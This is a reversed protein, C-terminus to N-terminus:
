ERGVHSSNTPFQNPSSKLRFGSKYCLTLTECASFERYQFLSYDEEFLRVLMKDRVVRVSEVIGAKEFQRWLGEEVDAAEKAKHPRKNTGEERAVKANTEDDVFGLNGVFVCSRHDIGAPHAVSDVRLHRDLVISGNLRSVAERAALETAYVVYANTSKTTTEMIEKKVFAAKKPMGSAAFATSRFRLSEIGHGEDRAPLSSAISALHNMLTKRAKKSRIATTSVNALFVTRSSKGLDPDAGSTFLSEHQPVDAVAHGEEGDIETDRDSTSEGDEDLTDVQASTVEQIDLKSRKNHLNGAREQGETGEERVLHSMYKSELDDEADKRKRNRTSGAAVNYNLIFAEPNEASPDNTPVQELSTGLLRGNEQWDSGNPSKRAEAAGTSSRGKLSSEPRAAIKM